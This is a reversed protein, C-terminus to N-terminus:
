RRLTLAFILVGAGVFAGVYGANAAGAFGAAVPGAVYGLSYVAHLLALSVGRMTDPANEFATLHVAPFTLGFGIGYLVVVGWMGSPAALVSLGLAGATLFMVGLQARRLAGGLWGARRALA